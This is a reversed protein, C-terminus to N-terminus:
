KLYNIKFQDITLEIKETDSLRLNITGNNAEKPGVVIIYNYKMMAAIMIKHQVTAGSLDIDTYWDNFQDKVENVYDNIKNNVPIIMIQRPSLWLPLHGQYHELLMAIMREESGLIARHIMVPRMKQGKENNYELDFKEPLQFDLQITGCQHTKEFADFVQIDIKPGYYAGGGKDISYVMENEKIAEELQQEALDWLESEGMFKEPRTSLAISYKLNFKNTYIYNLFDLCNSIESKIQEFMCFIHADDQHFLVNRTLGKITGSLEKRHLAGFDAIRLPLERYSRGENKYILCHKPCNTPCMYANHINDQEKDFNLESNTVENANVENANVENAPICYMNERYFDLHGSTKFLDYKCMIPTRVEKFGRKKYESRIMNELALCIRTGHELFFCSGSAYEHFMFLKLETGIEIHTKAKAKLEEFDEKSEM